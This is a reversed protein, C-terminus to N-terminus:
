TEGVVHLDSLQPLRMAGAVAEPGKPLSSPETLAPPQEHLQLIVPRRNEYIGGCEKAAQELFAAARTCYNNSMAHHAMRDLMALRVVKHAIGIEAVERLYAQRAAAHIERWRPSMRQSSKPDYAYVHSRTIEINFNTKVADVVQSPTDFCALAKVIFTRIEDTLTPMPDQDQVLQTCVPPPNREGAPLARQMLRAKIEDLTEMSEEDQRRRTQTAPM